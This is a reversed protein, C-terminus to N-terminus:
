VEEMENTTQFNTLEWEKYKEMDILDTISDVSLATMIILGISRKGELFMGQSNGTFTTQFIHCQGLIDNLVRRGRPTKLFLNRFDESMREAETKDDSESM